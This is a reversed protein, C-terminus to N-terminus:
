QRIKLAAESIASRARTSADTGEAGLTAPNAASLTTIEMLFGNPKRVVTTEITTNASPTRCTAVLKRVVSGDTSAVSKKGSLFDGKCQKTLRATADAAYDDALKTNRGEAALLYGTTGDNLSFRARKENDRPPLLRFGSVGSSNLLNSLLVTSQAVTLLRFDSPDKPATPPSTTTPASRGKAKNVCQVLRAIANNTGQLTFQLKAKGVVFAMRSGKRMNNVVHATTALPVMVLSKSAVQAQVPILAGGDVVIVASFRSNPKATLNWSPNSIWLRWSLKHDADFILSHGSRYRATMACRTFNGQKDFLPKGKWNGSQFTQSQATAALTPVIALALATALSLTGLTSKM